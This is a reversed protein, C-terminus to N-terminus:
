KRPRDAKDAPPSLDIQCQRLAELDVEKDDLRALIYELLDEQRPQGFVMRYAALAKKLAPLRQTERSLPLM